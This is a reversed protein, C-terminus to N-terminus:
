GNERGEKRAQRRANRDSILYEVGQRTMGAADAIEAFTHVPKAARLTEIFRAEAADRARRAKRVRTLLIM